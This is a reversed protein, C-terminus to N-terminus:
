ALRYFKVHVAPLYHYTYYEVQATYDTVRFQFQKAATLNLHAHVTCSARGKGLRTYNGHYTADTKNYLRFLIKGSANSRSSWRAHVIYEGAGLGWTGTWNNGYIGASPTVTGDNYQIVQAARYDLPDGVAYNASGTWSAAKLDASFAIPLTLPDKQIASFNGNADVGLIKDAGTTVSSVDNVNLTITGERSPANGNVSSVLHAM